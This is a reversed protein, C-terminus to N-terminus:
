ARTREKQLDHARQDFSDSVQEGESALELLKRFEESENPSKRELVQPTFIEDLLGRALEQERGKLSQTVKDVLEDRTFAVGGFEMEITPIPAQLKEWGEALIDITRIEPFQQVRERLVRDITIKDANTAVWVRLRNRNKHEMLM